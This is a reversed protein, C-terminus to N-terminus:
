AVGSVCRVEYPGLVAVPWSPPASAAEAATSCLLDGPGNSPHHWSMRVLPGNWATGTHAAGAQSALAAHLRGVPWLAGDPAVCGSPGNLWLPAAAEVQGVLRALVAALHAAGFAAGHRPDRAAM